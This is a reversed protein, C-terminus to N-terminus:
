FLNSIIGVDHKFPYNNGLWGNVKIKRINKKKLKYTQKLEVAIKYFSNELGHNLDDWIIIFENDLLGYKKIMDFEWLLANPDHLADSFILNFKRNKLMAWSNEDWIDAALYSIQNSKYKYVKISSDESRISTNMTSWSKESIFDFYREITPNINEIDFGVMEANTFQNALQYFNKGVSVGLELYNVTKLYKSFYVMLDTYTVEEDIRLDLLPFIDEPVGYMYYSSDRTQKSLWNPVTELVNRNKSIIEKLVAKRIAPFQTTYIENRRGILERLKEIMLIGM